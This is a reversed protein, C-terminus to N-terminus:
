AKADEERQLVFGVERDDYFRFTKDESDSGFNRLPIVAVDGEQFHDKFINVATAFVLFNMEKNGDTLYVRLGQSGSKFNVEKIGTIEGLVKIRTKETELKATTYSCLGKIERTQKRFKSYLCDSLKVSLMEQEMAELSKKDLAPLDIYKVSNDYTL